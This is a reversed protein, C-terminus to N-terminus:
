GNIQFLTIRPLKEIEKILNSDSTMRAYAEVTTAMEGLKNLEGILNQSLELKDRVFLNATEIIRKIEVMIKFVDIREM